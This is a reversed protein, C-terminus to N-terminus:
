PNGFFLWNCGRAGTAQRDELFARFPAIGTGPGIIIVPRDPAPLRFGEEDNGDAAFYGVLYAVLIAALRRTGSM